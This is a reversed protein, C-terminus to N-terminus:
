FIYLVDDDGQLERPIITKMNNIRELLYEKDGDSSNADIWELLLNLEKMVDDLNIKKIEAGDQFFHINLEAIAPELYKEYMRQSAINESMVENEDEYINGDYKYIGVSM